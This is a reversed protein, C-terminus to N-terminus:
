AGSRLGRCASPLAALSCCPHHLYPLAPAPLLFPPLGDLPREHAFPADGPAQAEAPEDDPWSREEQGGFSVRVPRAGNAAVAAQPQMGRGRHPAAHEPHSRALLRHQKRRREEQKRAQEQERHLERERQRLDHAGWM